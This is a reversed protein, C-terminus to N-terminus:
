DDLEEVEKLWIAYSADSPMRLDGRPSLSISGVKIGDPVCNRKFQQTFFRKVFVKLWKKITENDFKGKFTEKALFYIKKPSAGYRLFHYLYFDHLVYPGISSETQQLINGAKDPPLLEPSIPTDLIDKLVQKKGEDSNDAVWDVLYRVLTKPISSNVAYMSMHDGNYTCWGLALESLDGTGIVFGNEMNAIDMLIQTRERAQINEYTVSRDDEPLGIDKMHQISAEKISVEKLTAGYENVFKCANNYTRGTTGFGPMTVGIINKMDLGLKKYAEVIVLFALTSDLGGSIGIVCKPYNLQILRRALATAQITFIEQCREDRHAKNSPVFPYEKYNREFVNTDNVEVEIIDYYDDMLKGMYSANRIRENALKDVDVDTYILESEIQFRDNKKLLTGNEYIMSAGSFLVDSTSEMVGSSAYVYASMTKASQMSVLNNRYENKGIMENSSSLNFIITAGNVAHHDSPPYVTWLDECIEVGFCINKKSKDRFLLNTSILVRQGCLAVERSLLNLSSAFWRKEYFEAYNPIYTKPIVGLIKGKCIVVGCNFLQNDVRVPMGILSIIDINATEKLVIELGSEAEDLLKDQLFLDGCTYGTLSLEPTSVISIGKKHAVKIMRVLENANSIPDALVLKNVISGVRVFGLKKM